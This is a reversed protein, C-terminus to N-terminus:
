QFSIQVRLLTKTHCVGFLRDHNKYQLGLFKLKSIKEQRCKVTYTLQFTEEVNENSVIEAKKLSKKSIFKRYFNIDEATFEPESDNQLIKSNLLSGTLSFKAKSM